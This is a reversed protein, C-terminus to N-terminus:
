KSERGCNIIQSCKNFVGKLGDGEYIMQLSHLSLQYTSQCHPRDTKPASWYGGWELGNEKCIRGYENWSFDSDTKPLNGLYPDDGMFASDLALGFNHFSEGGRAHTVIKKPELVIWEGRANKKRGISFLAWQAPYDRLGDTVRLQLQNKDWMEQRVRRWKESLDPCLLKLRSESVIDDIM